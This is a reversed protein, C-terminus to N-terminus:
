RSRNPPRIPSARLPKADRETHRTTTLASPTRRPWDDGEDRAIRADAAKASRLWGAPVPLKARAPDASPLVSRTVSPPQAARVPPVAGMAARGDAEKRSEAQSTSAATERAFEEFVRAMVPDASWVEVLKRIDAPAHPVLTWRAGARHLDLPAKALHASIRAVERGQDAAIRALHKQVPASVIDQPELGFRALIRDDVDRGGDGGGVFHREEVIVALMRQLTLRRQEEDAARIAALRAVQEADRREAEAKAARALAEDIRDMAIQPVTPDARSLLPPLRLQHIAPLPARVRPLVNPLPRLVVAARAPRAQGSPWAGVTVARSVAMPLREPTSPGDAHRSIPKAPISIPAIATGKPLANSLLPPLEIPRASGQLPFRLNAIELSPPRSSLSPWQPLQPLAKAVADVPRREVPSAIPAFVLAIPTSEARQPLGLPNTMISLPMPPPSAAIAPMERDLVTAMIRQPVIAPLQPIRAWHRAINRQAQQEAALAEDAHRSDQDLQAAESRMVREFNEENRAIHHGNRAMSTLMGGLHQQPEHVLGRSANSKATYVQNHGAEFSTETMAAAYMERMLRMAQPNDLDTRLMEGVLWQHDGVRELPRFSFLIHLHWNREDGEPSPAHLAVAYPLGFRGLAEEAWMLGTKMMQDPTQRYDAAMISHMLLKANKQASWNVQELHDFASLAEDVDRGINSAFYPRGFEDLECGHFCYQLVRASVGESATKRSYYRIRVFVGREGRRDLVPGSYTPLAKSAYMWDRRREKPPTHRITKEPRVKTRLFRRM